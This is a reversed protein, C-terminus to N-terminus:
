RRPPATTSRVVLTPAVLTREPTGQGQPAGILHVLHEAALRGVEDNHPDVTTLRVLPSSALPTEDNGIVSVDEPV